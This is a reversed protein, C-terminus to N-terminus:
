AAARRATTAATPLHIRRGETGCVDCHEAKALHRKVASYTGCPLLGNPGPRTTTDNM